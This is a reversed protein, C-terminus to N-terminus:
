GGQPVGDWVPEAKSYSAVLARLDPRGDLLEIIRALPIRPALERLERYVTRAVILDEPEDVTLRLDLRQCAPAPALIEVAFASQNFRIYDAIHERPGGERHARELAGLTFIEFAAGEPVHDLVTADNGHEVHAHWAPELMDYDFFPDESTKRLIDSAGTLHGCAILRGLVDHESGVVHSCGLEGAVDEFIVNASGEAVGLVVEAISDFSQLARVSQALITTDADLRQLPKGFLRTGNNRVALVAILKRTM